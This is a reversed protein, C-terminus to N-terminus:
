NNQKISKLNLLFVILTISMGIIAAASYMSSSAIILQNKTPISCKSELLDCSKSFSELACGSVYLSLIVFILFITVSKQMYKLNKLSFNEM